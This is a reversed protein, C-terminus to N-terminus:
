KELDNNQDTIISSMDKNEKIEVQKGVPYYLNYAQFGVILVTGIIDTFFIPEGLLLFSLIYTFVICLYTIPQFKMIAIYKLALSMLYNGSYFFVSNSAVYLIYKWNLGFNLDIASMIGSLILNYLGLYFTQEDLDMKDKTVIKQGIQCLANTLVYLIAVFLGLFINTNLIATQSQPKKDNLVIFGTGIFCLIIGVLYRWYFSENLVIISLFLIFLPCTGAIVTITSIRFFDMLKVWFFIALALGINRIVFWKFHKIENHPTIKHGKYKCIYYAAITVPLIRWFICSNVTYVKPFLKAFSKVQIGNIGWILQTIIGITVAFKEDQRKKYLAADDLLSSHTSKIDDTSM